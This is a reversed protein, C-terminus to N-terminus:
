KKGKGKAGKTTVVSKAKAVNQPVAVLPPEGPEVVSATTQHRAAPLSAVPSAAPVFLKLVEGRQVHEVNCIIPIKVKYQVDSQFAERMHNLMARDAVRAPIELSLGIMDRSIVCNPGHVYRLM